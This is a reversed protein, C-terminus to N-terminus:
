FVVGENLVMKSVDFEFRMPVAVNTNFIRADFSIILKKNLPTVLPAGKENFRSFFFVAEAGQSKPPEFHVLERTERHENAIEVYNKLTAVTMERLTYPVGSHHDFPPSLTVVYNDACAPCELLTKMKNDFSAKESAGMQDYKGRLQRLRLLAQRIPLSSRLRVTVSGPDFASGSPLPPGIRERSRTLAWPSDSLVKQADAVTWQQYPTQQWNSQAAVSTILFILVFIVVPSRLYIKTM